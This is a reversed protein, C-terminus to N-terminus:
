TWHEPPSQQTHSNITLEDVSGPDTRQCFLINVQLIHLLRALSRSALELQIAGMRVSLCCITWAGARSITFPHRRRRRRRRRSAQNFRGRQKQYEGADYADYEVDDDAALRNNGIAAGM